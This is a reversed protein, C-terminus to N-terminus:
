NRCSTFVCDRLLAAAWLKKWFCCKDQVERSTVWRHGQGEQCENRSQQPIEGRPPFLFRFLPLLPLSIICSPHVISSLYVLSPSPLCLYSLFVALCLLSRPFHLYTARKLVSFPWHTPPPPSYASQQPFPSFHDTQPFPVASSCLPMATDLRWGTFVTKLIQKFRHIKKM